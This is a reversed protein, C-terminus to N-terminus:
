QPHGGGPSWPVFQPMPGPFDEPFVECQLSGELVGALFDTMGLRYRGVSRDRAPLVGVTWREPAGCTEWLLLDGNETLGFPLFGSEEPFVPLRPELGSANIVQLADLQVAVQRDLRLNVNRSSPSFIWIFSDISGTGYRTVFDRYDPPLRCLDAETTEWDAEGPVEAPHMPPTLVRELRALSM